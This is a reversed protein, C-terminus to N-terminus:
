KEMMKGWNSDEYIAIQNNLVQRLESIARNIDNTKLADDYADKVTKIINKEASNVKSSSYIDEFIQNINKISGNQYADSMKISLNTSDDGRYILSNNTINNLLSISQSTLVNPDIGENFSENDRLYDLGINHLSGLQEHQNLTYSM